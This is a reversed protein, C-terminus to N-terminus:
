IIIYTYIIYICIRAFAFCIHVTYTYPLLKQSLDLAKIAIDSFTLEPM